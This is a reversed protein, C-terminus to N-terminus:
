NQHKISQHRVVAKEDPAAELRGRDFTQLAKKWGYLPCVAGPGIGAM